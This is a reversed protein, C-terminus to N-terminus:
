KEDKLQVYYYDMPVGLETTKYRKVPVDSRTAELSLGAHKMLKTVSTTWAGNPMPKVERAYELESLQTSEGQMVRWAIAKGKEDAYFKLFKGKLDEGFVVAKPFYLTYMEGNSKNTTRMVSVRYDTGGGIAMTKRIVDEGVFQFKSERSM